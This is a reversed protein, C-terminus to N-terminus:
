YQAHESNWKREFETDDCVCGVPIGEQRFLMACCDGFYNNQYFKWTYLEVGPSNGLKSDLPLAMLTMRQRDWDLRVTYQLKRGWLRLDCGNRSGPLPWTESIVGYYRAALAIKVLDKYASTAIGYYKAAQANSKWPM